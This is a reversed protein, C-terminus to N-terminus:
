MLVVDFFFPSSYSTDVANQTDHRHIDQLSIKGQKKSTKKRCYGTLMIHKPVNMGVVVKMWIVSKEKSGRLLASM